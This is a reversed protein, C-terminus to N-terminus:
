DPRDCLPIKTWDDAAKVDVRDGRPIIGDFWVDGGDITFGKSDGWVDKSTSNLIACRVEIDFIEDFHSPLEKRNRIYAKKITSPPLFRTTCLPPSRKATM